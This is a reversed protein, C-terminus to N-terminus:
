FQVLPRVSQQRRHPLNHLLQRCRLALQLDNCPRSQIPSFFCPVADSWVGSCNVIVRRVLRASSKQPFAIPFKADYLAGDASKLKASGSIFQVDELTPGPAFLLFFEASASGAVLRKLKVTRLQSLEAAGFM